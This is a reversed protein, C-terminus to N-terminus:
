VVVQGNPLDAAAEAARRFAALSSELQQLEALSLLFALTSEAGQNENVRDPHLGDHCGGTSADYLEIGLDNRGLFWEFALRVENLWSPDETARYAEICASLTAWAEIPQQDFDARQGGSCYFGNCGIPRFHGAPARQVKVLWTLARLGVDLARADGSARGSLILAHPLVANDYSLAPEFWPWDVSATSDYLELLKDVLAARIQSVVRDGDLRRLYEDIGLLSTAWARPSRIEVSQPLANHFVEMAWS